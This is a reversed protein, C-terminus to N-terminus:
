RLNFKKMIYNMFTYIRIYINTTVGGYIIIILIIIIIYFIYLCNLKNVAQRKYVDLHTYSVTVLNYCKHNIDIKILVDSMVM